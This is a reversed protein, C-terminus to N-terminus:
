CHLANAFQFLLEPNFYGRFGFYALLGAFLSLVVWMVIRRREASAPSPLANHSLPQAPM